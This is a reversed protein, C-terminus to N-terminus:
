ETTAAIECWIRRKIKKFFFVNRHHLMWLPQSSHICYSQQGIQYNPKHWKQNRGDTNEDVLILPKRVWQLAFSPHIGFTNEAVRLDNSFWVTVCEIHGTQTDSKVLHFQIRSCSIKKLMTLATGHATVVRKWVDYKWRMEVGFLFIRNWNAKHIVTVFVEYKRRHKYM